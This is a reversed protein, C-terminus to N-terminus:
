DKVTAVRHVYSKLDEYAISRIDLNSRLAAAVANMGTENGALAGQGPVWYITVELKAQTSLM